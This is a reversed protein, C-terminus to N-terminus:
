FAGPIEVNELDSVDGPLADEIGSIASDLEQYKETNELGTGEMGSKWEELEGKIDEIEQIGDQVKSVANSYRQTRSVAPPPYKEVSTNWSVVEIEQSQPKFDRLRTEFRKRVTEDHLNGKNIRLRIVVDCQKVKNSM